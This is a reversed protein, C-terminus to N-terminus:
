HSLLLQYRLGWACLGPSWNAFGRAVEPQQSLFTYEPAPQNTLPQLCGFCNCLPKRHLAHRETVFKVLRCCAFKMLSHGTVLTSHMLRKCTYSFVGVAWKLGRFFGASLQKLHQRLNNRIDQIYGQVLSTGTTLKKIFVLKWFTSKSIPLM